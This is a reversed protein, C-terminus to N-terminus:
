LDAEENTFYSPDSTINCEGGPGPAVDCPAQSFRGLFREHLTSHSSYDIMVTLERM